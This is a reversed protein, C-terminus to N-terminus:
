KSSKPGNLVYKVRACKKNKSKNISKKDSFPVESAWHVLKKGTGMLILDM